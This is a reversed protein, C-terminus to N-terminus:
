RHSVTVSAGGALTYQQNSAASNAGTSLVSLRFTGAKPLTFSISFSDNGGLFVRGLVVSGRQVTIYERPVFSNTSGTVTFHYGHRDHGTFRSRSVHVVQRELVQVFNSTQGNSKAELVSNYLFGDLLTISWNGSTDATTSSVNRTGTRPDYSRLVVVAGPGATGVVQVQTGSTHSTSV